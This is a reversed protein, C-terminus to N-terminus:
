LLSQNKTLAESEGSFAEIQAERIIETEANLLEAPTLEGLKRQNEPRRCNNVFRQVWSRVRVLSLGVELQGKLKVKYWKSYRSPELRWEENSECDNALQQVANLSTPSENNLRCKVKIECLAERSPKGFKWEPWEAESSRLFNPENWWKTSDSLEQVTMGRTGLDAPNMDTPVYHM